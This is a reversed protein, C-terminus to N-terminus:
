DSRCQIPISCLTYYCPYIWLKLFLTIRERLHVMYHLLMMTHFANATLLYKFLPLKCLNNETQKFWINGCNLDKLIAALSIWTLANARIQSASSMESEKRRPKTNIQTQGAYSVLTFYLPGMIIWCLTPKIICRRCQLLISNVGTVPHKAPHSRIATAGTSSQLTM